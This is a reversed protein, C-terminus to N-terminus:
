ETLVTPVVSMGPRLQHQPDQDKEFVIKVPIRQVVKVYNGTANQPPLLSARAGTIAAISDIRGRFKKGGFTDVAITVPQGSRMNELQTEKFNATVWISDLDLPVVALLPQGPQVIQGVEVTRLSITGSAPARVVTYALNLEAAALEAKMQEVRAAASESRARVLAVQQPATGAEKVATHAQALRAQQQAVQSQAVRIGHEAESVQSEASEVQARSSEAAAVALDYQQRSVEEKEVLAKMRELDRAARVHNAAAERVRAQAANLRARAAEVAKEAASIAANIEGVGAEAGSLRSFTTTSTIPVETHSVNLGAEVEALDARARDVAVRYDKPDIEVLVTGAEVYQNDRVAVRIVTGGVRASVPHLHGDIQADDTSERVSRYGRYWLGGAVLGLLILLLVLKVIPSRRRSGRPQQPGPEQSNVTDAM